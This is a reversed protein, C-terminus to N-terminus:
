GGSKRRFQRQRKDNSRPGVGSRGSSDDGPHHQGAKKRELAARFQEHLADGEKGTTEDQTAPTTEQQAADDAGPRTAM